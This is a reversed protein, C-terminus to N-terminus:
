LQQKLFPFLMPLVLMHFHSVWHALSILSLTRMASTAAVKAHQSAALVDAMDSGNVGPATQASRPVQFGAAGDVLTSRGLRSLAGCYRCATRQGHACSCPVHARSDSEHAHSCAREGCTRHRGPRSGSGIVVPKRIPCATAGARRRM